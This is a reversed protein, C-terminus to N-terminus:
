TSITGPVVGSTRRAVVVLQGTGDHRVVDIPHRWVASLLEPTMVADPPGSARVEGRELVVIRDAYAAAAGLDHMVVVTARGEAARERAVALVREQHRVDLAATPEDLLLLSTDQALVRAFAARAQEGISLSPYARGAFADIEADVMAREVIADDLEESLTAVWPARGMRVIQEVTFPFSVGVRQLLVARRMALERHTWSGIPAGDLEVSGSDPRRDGALVNLLTSKGAGNPGVLAVLEGAEVRLSVADLARYDGYSISVDTASLLAGGVNVSPRRVARARRLMVNM